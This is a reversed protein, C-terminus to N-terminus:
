AGDAKVELQYTSHWADTTLQNEVTGTPYQVEAKFVNDNDSCATFALLTVGTLLFLIKKM